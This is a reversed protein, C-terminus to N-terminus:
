QSASVSTSDFKRCEWGSHHKKQSLRGFNAPRYWVEVGNEMSPLVFDPIEACDCYEFEEMTENTKANLLHDYMGHVLRVYDKVKDTEYVVVSVSTQVNETLHYFSQEAIKESLAHGDNGSLNVDLQELATVDFYSLHLNEPSAIIYRAFSGLIGVTCPTGGYCTSLVMVDFKLSDRTIKQLGGALDHITFTRDPASADYGEGNSEPIEHGFYLLMTFPASSNRTRYRDYLDAEPELYAGGHTRWYLEDTILEGNRYYFFEGDHLPFFFAFHRKPRQYFIFVEADSNKRAITQAEELADKDARHENGSSDHYIYDGDGHVLFLLSYLVPRGSMEARNSTQLPSDTACSMLALGMLGSCLYVIMVLSSRTDTSRKCLTNM